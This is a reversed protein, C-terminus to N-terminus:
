GPAPLERQDLLRELLGQDLGFRDAIEAIEVGAARLRVAAAQAEASMNRQQRSPGRGYKALRRFEAQGAESFADSVPGFLQDALADARTFAERLSEFALRDTFYFVARGFVVQVHEGVDRRTRAHGAVARVTVPQPGTFRAQMSMWCQGFQEQEQAASM